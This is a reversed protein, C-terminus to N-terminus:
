ELDRSECCKDIVDQVYGRYEEDTFPEDLPEKPGVVKHKQADPIQDIFGTTYYGSMDDYAQGADLLEELRGEVDPDSPYVGPSNYLYHLLYNDVPSCLNTVLNKDYLYITYIKGGALELIDERWNVSEDLKITVFEPQM